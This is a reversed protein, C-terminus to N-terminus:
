LEVTETELRSRRVEDEMEPEEPPVSEDIEPKEQDEDM